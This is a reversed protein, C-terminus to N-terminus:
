QTSIIVFHKFTIHTDGKGQIILIYCTHTFTIKTLPSKVYKLHIIAM